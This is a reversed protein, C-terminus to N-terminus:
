SFDMKFEVFRALSALEFYNSNFNRCVSPYKWIDKFRIPQAEISFSFLIFIEVGGFTNFIERNSMIGGWYRSIEWLIEVRHLIRENRRRSDPISIERNRPREHSFRRPLDGGRRKRKSDFRSGTGHVIDDTSAVLIRRPSTRTACVPHVRTRVHIPKFFPGMMGKKKEVGISSDINRVVRVKKQVDAWRKPVANITKRESESRPQGVVRRLFNLISNSKSTLHAQM